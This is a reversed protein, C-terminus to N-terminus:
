KWRKDKLETKKSNMLENHKETAHLIVPLNGKKRSNEELIIRGKNIVHRERKRGEKKRREKLREEKRGKERGGKKTEREKKERKRKNNHRQINDLGCRKM